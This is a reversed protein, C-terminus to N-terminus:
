RLGASEAALRRAVHINRWEQYREESSEGSSDSEEIIVDV